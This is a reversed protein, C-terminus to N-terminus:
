RWHILGSLGSVSQADVAVGDEGALVLGLPRPKGPPFNPGDGEICVLADVVNFHPRVVSYM